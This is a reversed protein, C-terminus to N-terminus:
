QHALGQPFYMKLRCCHYLGHYVMGGYGPSGRIVVLPRVIFGRLVFQIRQPNIRKMTKRNKTRATVRKAVM